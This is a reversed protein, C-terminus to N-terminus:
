IFYALLVAKELNSAAIFTTNNEPDYTFSLYRENYLWHTCNQKQAGTANLVNNFAVFFEEADCTTEWQINWTFLFDNGQEYYTFNDGTWGESAQKAEAQSIWNGWNDGPRLMVQIFYEGYRDNRVQNWGDEALAPLDVTKATNNAFYNEPHLIQKTTNPPNYYAQNVQSFGGQKMIADIFPTGYTYPFYNLSSIASPLQPHLEKLVPNSILLWPIQNIQANIPNAQLKSQNKFYDGMFSADGEILAAQAKEEDFNEAFPLSRQWIHTLEHILSAEAHLADSLDFNEKIVYVKGGWSAAGIYGAWDVNAQYLSAEEPIMFLSKYVKEERLINTLDPDAYARGWNEIAWDRTRIVLDVDRLTVNRLNEFEQKASDFLEQVKAEYEETNSDILLRGIGFTSVLLIAILAVAIIIIKHKQTLKEGKLYIHM